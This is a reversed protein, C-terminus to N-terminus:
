AANGAEGGGRAYPGPILRGHPPRRGIKGDGFVVQGRVLTYAIERDLPVDDWISRPHRYQVRDPAIPVPECPRVLTLDADHGIAIEGKGALDFRRAANTATLRALTPLDIGIEPAFTLLVPLLHQCGSIGGWTAFMDEGAKMAPPAPSHDSAVMDIEGAALRARLATRTEDDRLPPACKALAGIRGADEGTFVLYHPCTECTVDVGRRRADSVLDIGAATSVHVIHLACGTAEALAIARGIAETEAVAPRSELYDRMTTRGAKRARAALDATIADNEAHVAVPLGMSAAHCMGHYLTDDGARRFDDTGSSSMFAKFGIVGAEALEPLTDLNDPTLGGWLAFDAYSSASAAAVKADFSARDLTPPHANLPMEICATIGGAVLARSGSDWGEWETRGPENVHVHPDVGGPLVTMGTADLEADVTGALSRGLAIIRGGAIGLDAAVVGFATVLDGGRVILDYDTM